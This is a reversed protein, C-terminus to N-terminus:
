VGTEFMVRLLTYRNATYNNKVMREFVAPPGVLVVLRKARTVATYLLNRTLLMPPANTVSIIAADFESGQSKHISVAYSLTLQDIDSFSYVAVKDDDFRVTFELNQNNIREIYGVDGNYVGVGSEIRDKKTVLWEQQYNNSTQMVKDGERFVFDGNKIERRDSRGPNIKDQITKNINNVGAVGKKMPCLIQIDQPRVGLFKPLRNLCMDTVTDLIDQPEQTERFFFDDSSNDTKFMRGKNIAHANIVISSEKEQRYIETLYTVGFKGCAILDALVNGAGVSPLQDKDGVLILRAGHELAKILANFVFEDAMSVEDVIVVNAAIKSSDGFAPRERGGSFDLELLRHITKADEGSAEQLRKAARGTPACLAFSLRLNKIVHIIAKIITTKGTGPGGTIIHVGSNVSNKVAERQKGHLVFGTEAEFRSIDEDVGAFIDPCEGLLRLMRRAISKETEYNRTLAVATHEPLKETRVEGTFSLNVIAAEIRETLDESYGLLENAAATLKDFPLYTHGQQTVAEKLLHIVAASIRYESDPAIGSERAIKDATQFGVGEIDDVLKYPNQKIVAQTSSEYTKYIKLALNISISFNQLYIIIEQMSKMKQFQLGFETAKKLSIGKVKALQVPHNMVEFSAAGYKNVINAATVEGLGKILGGSLYKKMAEQSTPMGIRVNTVAFQRGYGKHTTWDGELELIEGEHVPPFIGVATHKQGDCLVEVVSYGNAPNTYIIDKVEGKLSM